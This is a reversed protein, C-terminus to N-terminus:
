SRIFVTQFVDIEVSNQSPNHPITGRQIRALPLCIEPCKQRTSNEQKMDCARNELTSVRLCHPQGSISIPRKMAPTKSKFTELCARPWMNFRERPSRGPGDLFLIRRTLYDVKTVAIIMVTYNCTFHLLIIAQDVAFREGLWLVLDAWKKRVDRLNLIWVLNGWPDVSIGLWKSLLCLLCVVGLSWLLARTLVYVELRFYVRFKRRSIRFPRQFGQLTKKQGSRSWSVNGQDSQLTGIATSIRDFKAHVCWCSEWLVGKVCACFKEGSLYHTQATILFLGTIQTLDFHLNLWAM